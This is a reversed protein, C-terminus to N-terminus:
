KIKRPADSNKRYKKLLVLGRRLREIGGRIHGQTCLELGRQELLRADEMIGVPVSHPHQLKHTLADDLKLCYDLRDSTVELGKPSNNETTQATNSARAQHSAHAMCLLILLFALSLVAHSAKIPMKRFLNQIIFFPNYSTM